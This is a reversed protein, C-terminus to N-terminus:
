YIGALLVFNLALETLVGDDHINEDEEQPGNENVEIDFM